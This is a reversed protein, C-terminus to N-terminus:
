LQSDSMTNVNIAIIVRLLLDVLKSADFCGLALSFSELVYTGFPWFLRVGFNGAGFHTKKLIVMALIVQRWYMPEFITPPSVGTGFYIIYVNTM